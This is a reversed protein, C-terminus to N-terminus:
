KRGTLGSMMLGKLSVLAPPPASTNMSTWLQSSQYTRPLSLDNQEVHTSVQLLQKLMRFDNPLDKMYEARM